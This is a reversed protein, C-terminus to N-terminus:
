FWDFEQAQFRLCLTVCDELVGDCIGVYFIDIMIDGPFTIAEFSQIRWIGSITVPDQLVVDCQLQNKFVGHKIPKQGGFQSPTQPSRM